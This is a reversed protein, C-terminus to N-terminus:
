DPPPPPPSPPPSSPIVGTAGKQFGQTASQTLFAPDDERHYRAGEKGITAAFFRAMGDANAVPVRAGGSPRFARSTLKPCTEYPRLIMERASRRGLVM